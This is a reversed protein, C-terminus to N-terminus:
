HHKERQAQMRRKLEAKFQSAGPLGFREVYSDSAFKLKSKGNAYDSALERLAQYTSKGQTRAAAKFRLALERPVRTQLLVTM